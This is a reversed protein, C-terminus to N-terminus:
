CFLLHNRNNKRGRKVMKRLKRLISKEGSIALYNHIQINYVLFLPKGSIEFAKKPTIYNTNM